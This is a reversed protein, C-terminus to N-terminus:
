SPTTDADQQPEKKNPEQGNERKVPLFIGFHCIGLHSRYVKIPLRLCGVDSHSTRGSTTCYKISFHLTRYRRLMSPNSSLHEEFVNVLRTMLHYAVSSSNRHGVCRERSSLLRPVFGIWVVCAGVVECPFMPNSWEEAEAPQQWATYLLGWDFMVIRNGSFRWEEVDSTEAQSSGDHVLNIPYCIVQSGDGLLWQNWVLNKVTESEDNANNGM